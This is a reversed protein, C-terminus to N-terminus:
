GLADELEDETYGFTDDEDKGGSAWIDAADSVSLTEGDEEEDDVADDPNWYDERGCQPCIWFNPFYFDMAVRCKRCILRTEGDLLDNDNM